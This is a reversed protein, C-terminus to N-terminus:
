NWYHFINCSKPFDEELIIAIVVVLDMLALLYFSALDSFKTYPLFVTHHVDLLSSSM